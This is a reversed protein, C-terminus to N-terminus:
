ILNFILLECSGEFHKNIKEGYKLSIGPVSTLEDTSVSLSFSGMSSVSWSRSEM